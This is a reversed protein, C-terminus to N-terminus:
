SNANNKGGNKKMKARIEAACSKKDTGSYGGKGEMCVRLREKYTQIDSQTQSIKEGAKKWLNLKKKAM